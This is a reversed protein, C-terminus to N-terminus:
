SALDGAHTWTFIPCRAADDHGARPPHLDHDHLQGRGPHDLDGALAVGVIWLDTAQARRTTSARVAARLDDLRGDAAGGITLFGGVHRDPRRVPVALLTLANLRPFAMDAAGIQLPILYNASASRSRADGFSLMMLTGHM